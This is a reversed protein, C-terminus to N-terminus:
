QVVSASASEPGWQRKGEFNLRPQKIIVGRIIVGRVRARENGGERARTRERERETERESERERERERARERARARETNVQWRGQGEFAVFGGLYCGLVEWVRVAMIADLSCMRYYSFM